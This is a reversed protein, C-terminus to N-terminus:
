WGAGPLVSIVTIKDPGFFDAAFASVAAQSLEEAAASLAALDVGGRLRDVQQHLASSPSGAAEAAAQRLAARAARLEAATLGEAAFRDIEARSHEAVADVSSLRCAAVILLLGPQPGTGPQTDIGYVLGGEHRLARYLRSRGSTSLAHLALWLAPLDPDDAALGPRAALVWGRGRSPARARAAAPREAPPAPLVVDLGAPPRSLPPPLIREAAARAQPLTIDGSFGIIRGPLRPLQTAAQRVRRPALSYASPLSQRPDDAALVSRAAISRLVQSAGRDQSAWPTVAGRRWAQLAGRDISPESLMSALASIAADSEATRFRATLESSWDDHRLTLALTAEDPPAALPLYWAAGAGSRQWWVSLRGAPLSVVVEILPVTEDRVVVLTDGGPLAEVTPAALAASLWLSAWM